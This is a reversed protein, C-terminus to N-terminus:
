VLLLFLLLFLAFGGERWCFEDGPNDGSIPLIIQNIKPPSRSFYNNVDYELQCAM